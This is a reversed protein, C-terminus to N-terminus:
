WGLPKYNNAMISISLIKGHAFKPDPRDGSKVISILLKILLCVQPLPPFLPVSDNLISGFVFVDKYLPYTINYSKNSSSKSHDNIINEFPNLIHNACFMPFLQICFKSFLNTIFKPQFKTFFKTGIKSQCLHCNTRIQSIFSSHPLIFSGISNPDLKTIISRALWTGEEVLKVPLDFIIIDFVDSYLILAWGTRRLFLAVLILYLSFLKLVLLILSILFLAM